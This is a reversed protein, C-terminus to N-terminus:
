RAPCISSSSRSRCRSCPVPTMRIVWSMPTTASIASRTMTMRWPRITSSPLAASMKALAAPRSCARAAPRRAACRRRRRRALRGLAPQRRLRRSDRHDAVQMDAEVHAAAEEAPDVAADVGDFADAERDRRALRQRQDAFGAAALRGGGLRQGPQHGVAAVDHDAPAIQRAEAAVRALRHAAVHLHDELVGVGREVRAHATPSRTASGSSIWPM